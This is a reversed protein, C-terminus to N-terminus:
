PAKRMRPDDLKSLPLHVTVDLPAADAWEDSGFDDKLDEGVSWLVLESGDAAVRFGLPQGRFPDLLAVDRLSVPASPLKGRYAREALTGVGITLARLLAQGRMDDYLFDIVGGADSAVTPLRSQTRFDQERKLEDLGDPYREPTIQRYRTPDAFLSWAKLLVPRERVTQWVLTASSKNSLAALSRLKMASVIDTLELTVGSPPPHTALTHLEHAARRLTTLDGRAACRVIVPVAVSTMRMSVSVAELPGGPVMDQGLRVVDTAIRLCEDPPQTEAQALLLLAADIARPYPPVHMESGREPALETQAWGHHTAARLRDLLARRGHLLEQEAPSLPKGYYVKDALADRVSEDVAAFDALASAAEAAANAEGPQGRLVPREWRLRRLTGVDADLQRCLQQYASEYYGVYAAM